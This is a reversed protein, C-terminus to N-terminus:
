VPGEDKIIALLDPSDATLRLLRNRIAHSPANLTANLHTLFDRQRAESAAPDYAALHPALTDHFLLDREAMHERFYSEMVCADILDELFAAAGPSAGTDAKAFIILSVLHQKQSRTYPSFQSFKPPRAALI